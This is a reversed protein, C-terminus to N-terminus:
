LISLQFVLAPTESNVQLNSADGLLIKCGWSFALFRIFFDLYASLLSHRTSVTSSAQLETCDHGTSTLATQELFFILNPWSAIM